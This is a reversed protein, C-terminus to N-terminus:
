KELLEKEKLHFEKAKELDGLNLYGEGVKGYIKGCHHMLM